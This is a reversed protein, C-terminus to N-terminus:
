RAAVPRMLPRPPRPDTEAKRAPGTDAARVTVSGAADAQGAPESITTLAPAPTVEVFVTVTCRAPDSVILPAVLETVM